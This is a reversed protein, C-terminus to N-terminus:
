HGRIQVVKSELFVLTRVPMLWYPLMRDDSISLEYLSKFEFSNFDNMDLPDDEIGVYWGSAKRELPGQRELFANPHGPEYSKSIMESYWLCCDEGDASYAEIVRRQLFHDMEARRLDTTFSAMRLLDLSRFVIPPGIEEVWLILWGFEVSHGVEIRRGALHGQLAREIVFTGTM